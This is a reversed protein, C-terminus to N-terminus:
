VIQYILKYFLCVYPTNKLLFKNITTIIYSFYDNKFKFVTIIKYIIDVFKYM